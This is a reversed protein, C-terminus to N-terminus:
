LALRKNYMKVIRSKNYDKQKPERILLSVGIRASFMCFRPFKFLPRLFKLRRINYWLRSDFGVQDGVRLLYGPAMIRKRNVFIFGNSILRQTGSWTRFIGMNWIFRCLRWEFHKLFKDARQYNINKPQRAYKIFQGFNRIAHSRQVIKQLILKNGFEWKIKQSYVTDPKRRWNFIKFYKNKKKSLPWKKVNFWKRKRKVMGYNYKLIAYRRRIRHKVSLNKRYFKSLKHRIVLNNRKRWRRRKPKKKHLFLGKHKRRYRSKKRRKTKLRSYTRKKWTLAKIRRKLYVMRAYSQKKLYFKKARKLRNLYKKPDWHRKIYKRM